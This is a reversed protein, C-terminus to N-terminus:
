AGARAPRPRRYQHDEPEPQCWDTVQQFASALAHGVVALMLCDVTRQAAVIAAPMWPKGPLLLAAREIGVGALCSIAICGAILLFLHAQLFRGAGFAQRLSLPQAASLSPLYLACIAAGASWVVINAEGLSGTNTKMAEAVAFFFAGFAVFRPSIVSRRLNDAEDCPSAGDLLSAKIWRDLFLTYVLAFLASWGWHGRYPELDHHTALLYTLAAALGAVPLTVIWFLMPNRVWFAISDVILFLLSPQRTEDDAYTDTAM